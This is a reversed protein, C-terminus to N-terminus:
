SFCFAYGKGAFLKLLLQPFLVPARYGPARPGRQRALAEGPDSTHQTSVCSSAETVLLRLAQSDFHSTAHKISLCRHVRNSPPIFLFDSTIVSLRLHHLMGGSHPHSGLDGFHGVPTCLNRGTHFAAKDKNQPICKMGAVEVAQGNQLSQGCAQRQGPTLLLHSAAGTSKEAVVTLSLATFASHGSTVDGLPGLSSAEM